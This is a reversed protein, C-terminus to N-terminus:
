SRLFLESSVVLVKEFFFTGEDIIGSFVWYGIVLFEFSNKLFYGLLCIM